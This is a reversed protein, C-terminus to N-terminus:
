LHIRLPTMKSEQMPVIVRTAAYVVRQLGKAAAQSCTSWPCQLGAAMRVLTVQNKLPTHMKVSQTQAMRGIKTILCSLRGSRVFICIAHIRAKPMNYTDERM